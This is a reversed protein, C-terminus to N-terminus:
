KERYKKEMAPNATIATINTVVQRVDKTMMSQQLFGGNTAREKRTKKPDMSNSYKEADRMLNRSPAHSGIRRESKRTVTM